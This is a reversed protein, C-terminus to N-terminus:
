DGAFYTVAIIMVGLLVGAAYLLNMRGDAVRGVARTCVVGPQM